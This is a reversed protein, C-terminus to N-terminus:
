HNFSMDNEASNEWLGSYESTEDQYYVWGRYQYRFLGEHYDGEDLVYTVQAHTKGDTGVYTSVTPDASVYGYNSPNLLETWRLNHSWNVNAPDFGEVETDYIYDMTLTRTAADSTYGLHEVVGDYEITDGFDLNPHVYTGAFVYFPRGEITETEGDSYEVDMVPRILVRMGGDWWGSPFHYRCIVSVINHDGVDFLQTPNGVDLDVTESWSWPDDPDDVTGAQVGYITQADYIPTSASEPVFNPDVWSSSGEDWRQLRIAIRANQADNLPYAQVM